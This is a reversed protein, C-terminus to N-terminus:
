SLRMAVWAMRSYQEHLNTAGLMVRNLRNCSLGADAALGRITDMRYWAVEPYTLKERKDDIEAAHFSVVFVSEKKMVLRAQEMCTSIEALTIHCFVAQALIYDFKCGFGGFSFKDSYMFLPDKAGGEGLENKLGEEVIPQTEPRDIGCYRGPLLYPIFLRGGRLSGCGIDLLYHHERLGLMTLVVFQVAGRRDYEAEKGVFARYNVM